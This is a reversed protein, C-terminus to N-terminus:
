MNGISEQLIETNAVCGKNRFTRKVVLAPLYNRKKKGKKKRLDFEPPISPMQIGHPPVFREISVQGTGGSETVPVQM